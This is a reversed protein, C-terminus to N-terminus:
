VLSRLQPAMYGSVQNTTSWDFYGHSAPRVMGLPKLLRRFPVIYIGFSIVVTGFTHAMKLAWPVGGIWESYWPSYNMFFWVCVATYSSIGLMLAWPRIHDPLAGPILPATDPRRYVIRERGTPRMGFGMGPIVKRELDGRRESRLNADDNIEAKVRWIARRYSKNRGIEYGTFDEDVDNFETRRDVDMDMDMDLDIPNDWTGGAMETDMFEIVGAATGNGAPPINAMEAAREQQSMEREQQRKCQDIFFRLRENNMRVPAPILRAAVYPGYEIMDRGRAYYSGWCLCSLLQEPEVGAELSISTSVGFILWEIIEGMEGRRVYWPDHKPHNEDDIDNHSVLYRM